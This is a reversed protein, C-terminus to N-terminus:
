TCLNSRQVLLLCTLTIDTDNNHNYNQGNADFFNANKKLVSTKILNKRGIYTCLLVYNSYFRCCKILNKPLKKLFLLISGLFCLFQLNQLEILYTCTTQPQSDERMYTCVYTSGSVIYTHTLSWHWCLLAQTTPLHHPDSKTYMHIKHHDNQLNVFIFTIRKKVSNYWKKSYSFLRCKQDMYRHLLVKM